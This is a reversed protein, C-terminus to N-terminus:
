YEICKTCVEKGFCMIYVNFNFNVMDMLDGLDDRNRALNCYM